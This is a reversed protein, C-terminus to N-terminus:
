PTRVSLPRPTRHDTRLGTRHASGCRSVDDTATSGSVEGSGARDGPETGRHDPETSGALGASRATAPQGVSGASVIGTARTGTGAVVEEQLATRREASGSAAPEHHSHAGAGHPSSAGTTAASGPDGM